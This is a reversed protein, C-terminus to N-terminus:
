AACLLFTVFAQWREMVFQMAENDDKFGHATFDALLYYAGEPVVVNFNLDQLTNVLADRKKLYGVSLSQYYHDPQDFAKITAYQLPTNPCVYVLDQVLAMKAILEAPGSVYGLRWGTMNYTKSLGSITLTCNKFDGLSAFSIHEKGPYTIYEYIEDTIVLLNYKQVLEGIALLEDLSFVKGSPNCPSCIVIGKTKPTIAAKLRDFDISMDNLNIPITKVNIHQLLLLNKHYGYFPEFLIVEDGPNFAATIACFFAGTSGHTVILESEPNITVHNFHKIKEAIKARLAPIGECPSYISKDEDIALHAAQKIEHLIPLDCVGQGLNIGGIEYCQKSAARIGSQQLGQVRESLIAM